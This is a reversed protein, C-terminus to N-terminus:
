VAGALLNTEIKALGCLVIPIPAEVWTFRAGFPWDNNSNSTDLM